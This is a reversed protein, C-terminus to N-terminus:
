DVCECPIRYKPRLVLQIIFDLILFLLAAVGSSDWMKTMGTTGVATPLRSRRAAIAQDINVSRKELVSKVSTPTSHMARVLRNEVSVELFWAVSLRM